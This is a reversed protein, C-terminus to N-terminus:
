LLFFYNYFDCLIFFHLFVATTHLNRFERLALAKNRDARFDNLPAQLALSYCPSGPQTVNTLWCWPPFTPKSHFCPPDPAKPAARSSTVPAGHWKSSHILMMELSFLGAKGIAGLSELDQPKDDRDQPYLYNSIAFLSVTKVNVYRCNIVSSCHHGPIVFADAWMGEAHDQIYDM